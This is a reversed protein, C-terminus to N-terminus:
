DECTTAKKTPPSPTLFDGSRRAMLFSAFAAWNNAAKKKLKYFSILLRRPLHKLLPQSRLPYSRCALGMPM